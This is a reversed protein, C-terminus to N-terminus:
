GRAVAVFHPNEFGPKGYALPAGDLTQVTGGAAALVAHGAAIDWEMTRGF